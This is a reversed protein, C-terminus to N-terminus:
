WMAEWAYSVLLWLLVFGVVLGIAGAIMREASEGVGDKNRKRSLTAEEGVQQGGSHSCGVEEVEYSSEAQVGSRRRASDRVETWRACYWALRAEEQLPM